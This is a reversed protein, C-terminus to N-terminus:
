AEEFAAVHTVNEVHSVGDSTEAVRWIENLIPSGRVDDVHSIIFLQRFAETSGALTGLTDLVQARRERDLSGFVEDLVLFGPPHAAQAGILRSLALRACLAAVDREGGSFESLPFHEEAGDYIELGYNEDFEVRDYKGETVAALLESTHEALQPTVRNAVYQDFATFERYMLDLLDAERARADARQALGSIRRQQEGLADRGALAERNAIRAENRAESGLREAERTARERAMAETLRAADFGLANRQATLEAAEAAFRRLALEASERQREREPRAALEREIQRVTAAADRAQSLGEEAAAHEAEDYAVLGFDSLAERAAVSEARHREADDRLHRLAPIMAAVRQFSDAQMRATRLDEPTPESELGHRKLEAALADAAEAAVEKAGDVMPQGQAIRGDLETLASAREMAARYTREETQAQKQLAKMERLLRAEQKELHEIQDELAALTIQAQEATFPRTCTPCRDEFREARLSAVLPEYQQRTAAAAQAKTAAEQSGRLARERQAQALRAKAQFDGAAVLSVREQELKSLLGVLKSRNQDSETRKTMLGVVTDLLNATARAGEVDLREAVDLLRTAGAIPDRADDATWGWGPVGTISATSSRVAQEISQRAKRLGTEARLLEAQLRQQQAFHDRDALHGAVTERLTPENEIVPILSERQKAAVTLRELAQDAALRRETAAREDGSVRELERDLAGHQRELAQWRDLETRAAVSEQSAAALRADAAEVVVQSQEVDREAAAAEVAFDRGASEETYQHSLAAAEGRARNREDAIAKQADRITELGLLRGVERRRETERLDGFFSLEKQRTFFTSVFARHSLGILQRAVYDSVQRPGQVIRAEPQDERYIEASAVGRKLGREVVYRAGDRPDELVVKVLTAGTGGRPPVEENKIEGPKYLCWEIAEFLTTKGVGNAGIVGVVAEPPVELRHAGAFQKYNEIELEVLIM